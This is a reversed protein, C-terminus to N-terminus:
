YACSSERLCTGGSLVKRNNPALIDMLEVDYMMNLDMPFSKAKWGIIVMLIM